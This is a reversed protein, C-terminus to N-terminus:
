QKKILQKELWERKEPDQLWYHITSHSTKFKAAIEVLTMGYKRIYRSTKKKHSNKKFLNLM